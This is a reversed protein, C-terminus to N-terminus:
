AHTNEGITMKYLGADESAKATESIGVGLVWLVEEGKALLWLADREHLPVKRDSLYDSLRKTGNLGLPCIVDGQRRHRFCAGGIANADFYEIGSAFKPSGAYPECIVLADGLAYSGSGTFAVAEEAIDLLKFFRLQGYVVAAEIGGIQIRKGSTANAALALVDCVHKHEIDVLGFRSEIASRVMRKQVAPMQSRLVDMDIQAGQKLSAIGGAQSVLWDLAAEDEAILAATQAIHWAAKENVKSLRPMVESRVFNRTYATDANTEDQIFAVGQQKAYQSIEDRSIGLMPRIYRGRREPIGSLGRPGSGRLLNMIVTEALDDMHHATAIHATDQAELFAYRAQRAATELSIGRAKAIVPVDAREAVCVVGRRMCEQQVFHMDDVSRQGRIGHEMHFVVIIINLEVRLNCLCHLLVMSDIGGSVAVGLKQGYKVGLSNLKQRIHAEMREMKVIIVSRRM